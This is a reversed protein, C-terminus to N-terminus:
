APGPKRIVSRTDAPSSVDATGSHSFWSRYEELRKRGTGDVLEQEIKAVTDKLQRIWSKVTAASASGPVQGLQALMSVDGEPNHVPATIFSIDLTAGDDDLPVEERFFSARGLEASVARQRAPTLRGAAYDALSDRLREIEDADPGALTIEFGRALVSDLRQRYAPVEDRDPLRALWRDVVHEEAGAVYAMGIPPILPIREGLRETMEATGGYASIAITLADEDVAVLATTQCQLRTALEDLHPRAVDALRLAAFLGADGRASMTRPSFGGYGGQFFLLPTVPRTVEMTTVRCLTIWHDGAEFQEARTCHITAVANHLVPAGEPSLSWAVKDFKDPDSGALVRCVDTQDYALVNICLVPAELLKPYSTSTKAPMFSVMPPDLSVSSFTGVVMGVPKGNRMGSVLVVGTPYHGMVERYFNTDM